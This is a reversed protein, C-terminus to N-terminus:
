KCIKSIFSIFDSVSERVFDKALTKVSSNEISQFALNIPDATNKFKARISRSDIENLNSMLEKSHNQIEFPNIEEQFSLNTTQSM